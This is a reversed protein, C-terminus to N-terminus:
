SNFGKVSINLHSLAERQLKFMADKEEQIEHDLGALHLVGHVVLLSLENMSSHGADSAQQSARPYSIVVDGLYGKGSDPDKENAPFSLVDTTEKVKRFESNLAKVQKDGTIVITFDADLSLGGLQCAARAAKRLEATNVSPWFEEDVQIHIM